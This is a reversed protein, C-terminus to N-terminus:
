RKKNSAKERLKRMIFQYRVNFLYINWEQVEEWTVGSEKSVLDIADM